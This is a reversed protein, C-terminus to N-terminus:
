NASRRLSRANRSPAGGKCSYYASRRATIISIDWSHTVGFLTLAKGVYIDLPVILWDHPRATEPVRTYLALHLHMRVIYCALAVLCHPMVNGDLKFEAKSNGIPQWTFDRITFLCFFHRWFVDGVSVLSALLIQVQARLSSCIIVCLM